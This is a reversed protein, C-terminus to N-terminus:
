VEGDRRTIRMRLQMRDAVTAGLKAETLRIEAHLATTPERYYAEVLPALMRLCMWDTAAFLSAQPSRRWTNWWARVEESYEDARPLMPAGPVPDTGLEVWQHQRREPRTAQDDPKPPRGRMQRVRNEGSDFTDRRPM